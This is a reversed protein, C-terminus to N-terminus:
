SRQALPRRASTAVSPPQVARTATGPGPLCCRRPPVNQRRVPPARGDGRHNEAPGPLDETRRQRRVRGYPIPDRPGGPPPHTTAPPPTHRPAPPPAPPPPSKPPPPPPTAGGGTNNGRPAPHSKRGQNGGVGGIRFPIPPAVPRRTRGAFSLVPDLDRRGAISRTLASAETTGGLILLRM